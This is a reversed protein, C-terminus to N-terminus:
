GKQSLVILDCEWEIFVREEGDRDWVITIERMNISDGHNKTQIEKVIGTDGTYRDLNKNWDYLAGLAIRDGVKVMPNDEAKSVIQFDCESDFVDIKKGDGFDVIMCYESGFRQTLEIQLQYIIGIQGVYQELSYYGKRPKSRGPANEASICDDSKSHVRAIKIRDGAKISMKGKRTTYYPVFLNPM